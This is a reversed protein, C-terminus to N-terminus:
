DTFEESHINGHQAVLELELVRVRRRGGRQVTEYKEAVDAEENLAPKEHLQFLETQQM